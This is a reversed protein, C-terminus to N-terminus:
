ALMAQGKAWLDRAIFRETHTHKRDTKNRHNTSGSLCLLPPLDSFPIIAM